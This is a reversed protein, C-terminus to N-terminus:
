SLTKYIYFFYILVLFVGEKRSVEKKSFVYFLLGVFFTILLMWFYDFSFIAADDINIEKLSATIGLVALINFINSGILNGVALNAERKFAAIISTALEPVSTGVAVITVAVVRDSIGLNNALVKTSYVLSDAGFKLMFVGSILIIISKLLSDSPAKDITLHQNSEAKLNEKRSAVILIWIFVLLLVVFSLGIYVPVGNFFYLVFGLLLTTGFMMPFNLSLTQKSIKVRFIIATVGLVLAINAINSGIANGFAINSSGDFVAKLSVFLEPASTAFSVVTMGVVLTSIKMKLALSVSGRVLLDGGFFLLVFGLLLLLITFSM